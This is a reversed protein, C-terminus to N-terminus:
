YVSEKFLIINDRTDIIILKYSPNYEKNNLDTYKKYFLINSTNLLECELSCINDGINVEPYPGIIWDKGFPKKQKLKDLDEISVKFFLERDGDGTFDDFNNIDKIEYASKPFFINTSLFFSLNKSLSFIIITLSVIFLCVIAIIKKLM